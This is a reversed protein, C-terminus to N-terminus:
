IHILSLSTFVLDVYSTVDVGSGDSATNATFYSDTIPNTGLMENVTTAPDPFDAWVEADGVALEITGQSNWIPRDRICM